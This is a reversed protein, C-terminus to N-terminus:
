KLVHLSKKWAERLLYTGIYAECEQRYDECFEMNGKDKTSTEFLEEAYPDDSFSLGNDAAGQALSDTITFDLSDMNDSTENVGLEQKWFDISFSAIEKATGDQTIEDVTADVYDPTGSQLTVAFRNYWTFSTNLPTKKSCLKAVLKMLPKSLKPVYEKRKEGNDREKETATTKRKM